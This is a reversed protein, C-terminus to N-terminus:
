IGLLTKPAQSQDSMGGLNNPDTLITSSRGVGQYMRRRKEAVKQADNENVADPKVADTFKIDPMKPAGQSMQYGQMAMSGAMMAGMAILAVPPM